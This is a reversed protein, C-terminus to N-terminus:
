GSLWCCNGQCGVVIRVVSKFMNLKTNSSHWLLTKMNRHMKPLPEQPIHHSKGMRCIVPNCPYVPLIHQLDRLGWFVRRM